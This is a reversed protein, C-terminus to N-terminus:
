NNGPGSTVSPPPTCTAVTMPMHNRLADNVKGLCFHAILLALVIFITSTSKKMPPLFVFDPYSSQMSATLNNVDFIVINLFPTTRMYIKHELPTGIKSIAKM